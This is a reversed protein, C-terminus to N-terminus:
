DRRYCGSDASGRRAESPMAGRRRVMGLGGAAREVRQRRARLPDTTCGTTATSGSSTPTRSSATAVGTRRCRCRTAPSARLPRPTSASSSPATPSRGARLRPGRRSAARCRGRTSTPPRSRTRSRSSAARSACRDARPWWHLLLAAQPNAALEGGKRSERNTFFTFGREDAEKLLVMRASPRGDPTATALAMIEPVEVGAARAEEFWRRFQRLPDPDLDLQDMAHLTNM